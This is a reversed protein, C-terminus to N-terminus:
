AKREWVGGLYGQRATGSKDEGVDRQVEDLASVVSLSAEEGVLIVVEIEVPQLFVGAFGASCAADGAPGRQRRRRADARKGPTTGPQVPARRPPHWGAPLSRCRRRPRHGTAGASGGPRRASGPLAPGWATSALIGSVTGPPPLRPRDGIEEISHAKGRPALCPACYTM